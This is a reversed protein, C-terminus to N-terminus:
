QLYYALKMESYCVKRDLTLASIKVADKWKHICDGLQMDGFMHHLQNGISESSPDRAVIQLPHFADSQSM